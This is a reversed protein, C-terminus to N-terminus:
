IGVWGPLNKRTHLFSGAAGRTTYILFHMFQVVGDLDRIEDM